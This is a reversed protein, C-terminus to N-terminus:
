KVREAERSAEREHRIPEIHVDEEEEEEEEEEV